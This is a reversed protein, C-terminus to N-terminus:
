TVTGSGRIYTWDSRRRLTGGALAPGDPQTRRPLRNPCSGPAPGLAVGRGAELRSELSDETDRTGSEKRTCVAAGM